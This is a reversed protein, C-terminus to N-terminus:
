ASLLHSQFNYIYSIETVKTIRKVKEMEVATSATAVIM